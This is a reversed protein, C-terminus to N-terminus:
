RCAEVTKGTLKAAGLIDTFRPIDAYEGTNWSRIGM